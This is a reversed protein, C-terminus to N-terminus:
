EFLERMSINTSAVHVTLITRFDTALKTDQSTSLSTIYFYCDTKARKLPDIMYLYLQHKPITIYFYKFHFKSLAFELLWDSLLIM